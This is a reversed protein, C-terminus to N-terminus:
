IQMDFVEQSLKRYAESTPSLSIDDPPPPPPPANSSSFIEMAKFVGEGRHSSGFVSNLISGKEKDTHAPSKGHGDDKDSTSEGLIPRGRRGM